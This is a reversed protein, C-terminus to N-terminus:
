RSVPNNEEAIRILRHDKLYGHKRIMRSVENYFYKIEDNGPLMM